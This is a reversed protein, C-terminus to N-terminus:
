ELPRQLGPTAREVGGKHRCTGACLVDRVEILPTTLLTQITFDPM